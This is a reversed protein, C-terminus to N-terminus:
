HPKSIEGKDWLHGVRHYFYNIIIETTRVNFREKVNYSAKPKSNQRQQSESM